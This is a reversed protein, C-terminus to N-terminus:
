CFPIIIKILKQSVHNLEKYEVKSRLTMMFTTCVLKLRMHDISIHIM